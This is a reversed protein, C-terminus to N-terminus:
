TVFRRVKLHFPTATQTTGAGQGEVMTITVHLDGSGIPDNFLQVFDYFSFVISYGFFFISEGFDSLSLRSCYLRLGLRQNSSIDSATPAASISFSSIQIMFSLIFIVGLLSMFNLRCGLERPVAGGGGRM